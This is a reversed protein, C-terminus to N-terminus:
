RSFLWCRCVPKMRGRGNLPFLVERGVSMQLQLHQQKWSAFCPLKPVTM